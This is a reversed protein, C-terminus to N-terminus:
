AAKRANIADVMAIREGIWRMVPVAMSNGLAKYRPGDAAPKNRYPVLTYGQTTTLRVVFSNAAQTTEPIFGAIARVVCCSLTTLTSRLIETGLGHPLTTSKSCLTATKIASEADAAREETERGFSIAIGSGNSPLISPTMSM